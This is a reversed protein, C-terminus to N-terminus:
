HVRGARNVLSDFASELSRALNIDDDCAFGAHAFAREDVCNEAALQRPCTRTARDGLMGLFDGSLPVRDGYDVGFAQLQLIVVGDGGFQSIDDVGSRRRVIFILM